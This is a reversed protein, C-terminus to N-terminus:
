DEGDADDRVLAMPVLVCKTQRGAMRVNADALAGPLRALSQGWVGEAGSRGQWHSGAYIRALGQHSAAVAVWRSGAPRGPADKKQQIVRLGIVAMAREAVKDPEEDPMLVKDMDDAARGIWQMISLPRSGGDLTVTSTLLHALCSHSQSMISRTEGLADAATEDAWGRAEELTPVKDALLLDACALLVGFQDAGRGGHGVEKLMDRYISLTANFRQWGDLMRRRLVAGYDRLKEPTLQPEPRGHILPDLELIALRSRDQPLLPPMLISSFLFCSRAVFGQATHDAGGRVISGGSSAQRALKILAQLKRNDEEAEVEDMAVPLTQNGLTQRIGAESADSSSLLAGGLVGKILMHLTSKGTGQDGTVWALPRWALAGGVVCAGLWGLMLYPDLGARKWNWTSIDALLADMMRAPGPGELPRAIAPSAPYVYGDHRGTGRWEGGIMVADGVHLILGGAEDLWAGRDRVRDAANWVGERACANMLEEAAEEPRWGTITSGDRGYRPWVAHVFDTRPAFLALLDKNGHDRAKLARLQGVADLYFHQDGHKGLPTVPCGEPLGGWKNRKSPHGGGGDPAPGPDDSEAPPPSAKPKPARKRRGAVSGRDADRRPSAVSEGDLAARAADLGDGPPSGGADTM